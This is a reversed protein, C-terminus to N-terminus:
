SPNENLDVAGCCARRVCLLDRQVRLEGGARLLRQAVGDLGRAGRAVRLELGGVEEIQSICTEVAETAFDDDVGHKHHIAVAVDHDTFTRTSTTM